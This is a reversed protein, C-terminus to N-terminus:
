SSGSVTIGDEAGGISGQVTGLVFAPIPDHPVAGSAGLRRQNLTFLLPNLPPRHAKSM